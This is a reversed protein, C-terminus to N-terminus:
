FIDGGLKSKELVKNNGLIGVRFDNLYTKQYFNKWFEATM